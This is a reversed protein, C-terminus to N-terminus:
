DDHNPRMFKDFANTQKYKNTNYGPVPRFCGLPNSMLKRWNDMKTKAMIKGADVALNQVWHRCSGALADLRDDHLLSGADRTIRALQFFLSYTFKKDASYKMLSQYDKDLLGQDIILRNSGIIPELIDIIRLEKQGSEWVEEISCRHVKLLKPTWVQALAGNGFNKEIDIQQPKWKLAVETLHDLQKDGLGGPIGGVDVVFVKGALFKTVAYALEDGNKGGGSPDIYMHTGSYDNFESEYGSIKYLMDQFPYGQPLLIRTDESPTWNIIIPARDKPVDMFVLSRLKLPYRDEDMLRTDLMHQLQFYAKGQDIEKASLTAEDLLIPDTVQGRDGLPGGGQQLSPDATLKDHLYPALYGQYNPLESVTPFRGTWIRITFGRSPLSNYVSDTNQPTGLYVIEGDSCISMFDLTLHRLRERQMATQSNKTSEIDDPILLDARYGQIHAAIGLCCISPSKEPGKLEHHIDFATVATRDRSTEDPRLCELEPMMMIIQILWNAIQSAMASGASLILVRLKPNHILKWVAYIATITTKAQGRQAMIMKYKPGTSLFLGIDQQLPSCEFGMLETMVDHLFPAFHQYHEQLLKVQEHRTSKVPKKKAM